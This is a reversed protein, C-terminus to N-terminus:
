KVYTGNKSNMDTIFVLGSEDMFFEVHHTSIEDHNLVIDNDSGRGVKILKYSM